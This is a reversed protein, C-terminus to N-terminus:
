DKIRARLKDLDDKSKALVTYSYALVEKQDPRLRAVDVDMDNLVRVWALFEATAPEKKLDKRLSNFHKVAHDLKEPTFDSRLTLRRSVIKKLEDDDPLEIHYFVCRRLFADPLDKESNSTMILIPRYAAPSKFPAARRLERVSFEMNELENLIDNPLDRPAKDIEDVLVVSRIPGTGRREKPLFADAEEPPLSLLVALGMAEFRIYAEVPPPAGDRTVQSAHFHGLADYQYFLDRAVSTTKAHFVLPKQLGLEHAVSSALQTKGTGPKGTLLLPQGLSLAVNVADRLGASARYLEPNELDGFPVYPPLIQRRASVTTGDGVYLRFGNLDPM